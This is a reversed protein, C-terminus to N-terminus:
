VDEPNIGARNYIESFLTDSILKGFKFQVVESEKPLSNGNGFKGDKSMWYYNSGSFQETLFRITGGRKYRYNYVIVLVQVGSVPAKLWDESIKGEATSGDSYYLVFGKIPLPSGDNYTRM